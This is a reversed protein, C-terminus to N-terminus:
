PEVPGDLLLISLWSPVSPKPKAPESLGVLSEGTVLGWMYDEFPGEGLDVTKSSGWSYCKFHIHGSDWRYWVGNDIILDGLFSVWHNPLAVTPESGGLMATDIMLFAVGGRNQVDKARRMAEFEGYFYTSEYEVKDFSLLEFTWGKMEWPTSFGMVFQGSSAEVPFLANETDRLTAMLMWDAVTIDSRLRSNLLTSSPKIEKTRATFQGTEYLSQCIEVYQSPQRAMLEFVIAAPGCLPTNGQRVNYPNAIKSRMDALLEDKRINPWVGIQSSAEFRTIAETVADM